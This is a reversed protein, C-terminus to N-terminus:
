RAPGAPIASPDASRRITRCCCPEGAAEREVEPPPEPLSISMFRDTTRRSSQWESRMADPNARGPSRLPAANSVAAALRQKCAAM